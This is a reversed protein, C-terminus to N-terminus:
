IVPWELERRWPGGGAVDDHEIFLTDAHLGTLLIGEILEFLPAEIRDFNREAVEQWESATKM